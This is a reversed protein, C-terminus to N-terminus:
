ETTINMTMWEPYRRCRVGVHARYDLIFFVAGSTPRHNPLTLRYGYGRGRLTGMAEICAGTVRQQCAVIMVVPWVSLIEPSPDLLVDVAYGLVFLISLAFYVHM